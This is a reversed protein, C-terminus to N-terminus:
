KAYRSRDIPPPTGVNSITTREIKPDPPLERVVCVREVGDIRRIETHQPVGEGKVKVM